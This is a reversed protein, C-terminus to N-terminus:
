GKGKEGEKTKKGAKDPPQLPLIIKKKKKGRRGKTMKRFPYGAMRPGESNRKEGLNMWVGRKGELNM